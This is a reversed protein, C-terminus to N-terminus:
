WLDYDEKINTSYLKNLQNIIESSPERKGNEIEGYQRSSIGLISAVLWKRIKFRKRLNVIQENITM